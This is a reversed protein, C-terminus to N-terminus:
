VFARSVQTNIVALQKELNKKTEEEEDLQEQLSERESELQRLRTSLALKQRTEDQLQEQM